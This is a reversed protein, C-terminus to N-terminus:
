GTGRTAGAAGPRAGPARRRRGDGSITEFGPRLAPGRVPGIAPGIATLSVQARSDSIWSLITGHGAGVSREDASSGLEAAEDARDAGRLGPQRRGDDDAAVGAHALRAQQALEQAARRGVADEAQDTVADVEAVGRRGVQREGLREGPEGGFAGFEAVVQEFAEGRQGPQQGTARGLRLYRDLAALQEVGDEGSQAVEGAVLRDRQDDLVDVPGVLGGAVQEAEQEGPQGGDADHDDRAVAAVVQVAPVRQPAGQGLPGPQGQDGPHEEVREGGVVHAGEHARHVRGAHGVGVDVVDHPAGVAVREEGYQEAAAM